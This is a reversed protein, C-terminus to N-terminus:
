GGMQAYLDTPSIHRMRRTEMTDPDGPPRRTPPPLESLDERGEQDSRTRNKERRNIRRAAVTDTDLGVADFSPLSPLPAAPARNSPLRQPSTQHTQSRDSRKRRPADYPDRPRPVYSSTPGPVYSHSSRFNSRSRKPLEPEKEPELDYPVSLSTTRSSRDLWSVFLGAGALSRDPWGPAPGILRFAYWYYGIDM